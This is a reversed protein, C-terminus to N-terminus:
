NVVDVEDDTFDELYFNLRQEIDQIMNEVVSRSLLTMRMTEAVSDGEGICEFVVKEKQDLTNIALDMSFLEFELDEIEMEYRQIKHIRDVIKDDYKRKHSSQVKEIFSYDKTSTILRLRDIKDQLDNIQTKLRNYKRYISKLDMSDGEMYVLLSKAWRTGYQDM